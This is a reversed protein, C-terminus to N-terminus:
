LLVGYLSASGKGPTSAGALILRCVAKCRCWHGHDLGQTIEHVFYRRSGVSCPPAHVQSTRGAARATLARWWLPLSVGVPNSTVWHALGGRKRGNAPTILRLCGVERRAGAQLRQFASPADGWQLQAIQWAAIATGGLFIATIPLPIDPRLAAHSSCLHARTGPAGPTSRSCATNIGM